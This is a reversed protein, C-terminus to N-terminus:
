GNTDGTKVDKIYYGLRCMPDSETGHNFSYVDINMAQLAPRFAEPLGYRTIDEEVSVFQHQDEWEVALFFTGNGTLYTAKYASCLPVIYEERVEKALKSVRMDYADKQRQARRILKSLHMVDNPSM